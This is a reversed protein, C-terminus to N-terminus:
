ATVVYSAASLRVRLGEAFHGITNGYQHDPSWVLWHKFVRVKVREEEM